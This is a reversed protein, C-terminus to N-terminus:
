TSSPPTTPSAETTTKKQDVWQLYLQLVDRMHAQTVGEGTQPDIPKFDFAFIAAKILAEEAAAREWEEKEPTKEPDQQALFDDFKGKTAYILKRRIDLPDAYVPKGTKYDPYAFVMRDEARFM